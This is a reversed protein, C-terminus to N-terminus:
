RNKFEWINKLYDITDAVINVSSVKDTRRIFLCPIEKIKLGMKQSLIMVETDWFWGNNRCADIVPMIKERDFFKFGTETDLIDTKLLKRALKRYGITLIHRPIAKLHIKYIRYATWVDYGEQEIASLMSPIYRAHVELDIDIFGVIKGQAMRIGECVTGGRGTNKEHFLYRM